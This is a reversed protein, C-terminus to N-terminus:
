IDAKFFQVLADPKTDDDCTLYRTWFEVLTKVPVKGDDPSYVDFCKRYYAEDNHETSKCIIMHDEVTIMGDSDMDMLNCVLEENERMRRGFEEKDTEFARRQCEIFEAETIESKGWMVYENSWASFTDVAVKKRQANLHHLNAFKNRELMWDLGISSSAPFLVLKFYIVLCQVSTPIEAAIPLLAWVATTTTWGALCQAVSEGVSESDETSIRGDKNHDFWSFWMRWKSVLFDNAM